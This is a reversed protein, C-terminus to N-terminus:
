RVSEWLTRSMYKAAAWSSRTPNSEATVVRWFRPGIQIIEVTLRSGNLGDLSGVGKWYNNGNIVMNIGADGFKMANKNSQVFARLYNAFALDKVQDVGLVATMSQNYYDFKYVIDKKDVLRTDLAWDPPITIALDTIPNKWWTPTSRTMNTQASTQASIQSPRVSMKNTSEIIGNILLLCVALVMFFITKVWSCSTARVSRNKTEDYTTPQGKKLKSYQIIFVGQSLLPIGLAFGNIWVDLNRLIHQKFSLGTGNANVVTLGLLAKGPTNGFAKFVVSDVILTLPLCLIAFLQPFGPKELLAQYAPFLLSLAMSMFFVLPLSIIWVDFTRAFFRRAPSAKPNELPTIRPIEPLPPPPQKHFRNLEGINKLQEWKPMGEKWLWSDQDIKGKLFLLELEEFEVPNSKQGKVTYWIATM